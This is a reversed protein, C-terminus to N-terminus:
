HNPRDIRKKVENTITTSLGEDAHFLQDAIHLAIDIETGGKLGIGSRSLPMLADALAERGTADKPAI